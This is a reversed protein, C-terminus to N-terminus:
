LDFPMEQMISPLLPDMYQTNGNVTDPHQQRVILWLMLNRATKLLLVSQLLLLSLVYRLPACTLILYLLLHAVAGVHSVGAVHPYPLIYTLCSVIHCVFYVVAHLKVATHCQTNTTGALSHPPSQRACGHHLPRGQGSRQRYNAQYQSCRRCRPIREGDRLHPM